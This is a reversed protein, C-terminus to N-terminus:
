GVDALAAQLKDWRAEARQARATAEDLDAELDRAHTAADLRSGIEALLDAADFSLLVTQTSTAAVPAAPAHLVEEILSIAALVNGSAPVSITQSTTTVPATPMITEKRPPPPPSPPPPPPAPPAVALPQAAPAFPYRDLAPRRGDRCYGCRGDVLRPMDEGCEDCEGPEGAPIAASVRALGRAVHEAEIEAALDVIDPM